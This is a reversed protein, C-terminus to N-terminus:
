RRRRKREVKITHYEVYEYDIVVHGDIDNEELFEKLTEELDFPDEDLDKVFYCGCDDYYEFEWGRERAFSEFEECRPIYAYFCYARAEGM